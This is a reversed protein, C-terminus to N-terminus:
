NRAKKERNGRYLRRLRRDPQDQLDFGRGENERRRPSVQVLIEDGAKLVSHERGDTYLHRRNEALSYFGNVGPRYEM